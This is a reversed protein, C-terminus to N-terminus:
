LLEAVFSKWKEAEPYRKKGREISTKEFHCARCLAQCNDPDYMSGGHEMPIRHDCELIGAKGCIEGAHLECGKCQCRYKDRHLVFQRVHNWQTRNVKCWYKSLGM